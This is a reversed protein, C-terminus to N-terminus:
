EAKPVKKPDTLRSDSPIKSFYSIARGKEERIAAIGRVLLQTSKFRICHDKNHFRKKGPISPVPNKGNSHKRCSYVCFRKRSDLRLM